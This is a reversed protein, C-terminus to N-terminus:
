WSHVMMCVLFNPRAEWMWIIISSIGLEQFTKLQWDESAISWERKLDIGKDEVIKNSEQNINM